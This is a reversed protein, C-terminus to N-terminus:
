YIYSGCTGCIECSHPASGFSDCCTAPDVSFGVCAYYAVFAPDNCPICPSQAHMGLFTAVEGADLNTDQNTDLASFLCQLISSPWNLISVWTEWESLDLSGDGNADKCSIDAFCALSDEAGTWGATTCASCEDVGLAAYCAHFETGGGSGEDSSTTEGVAEDEEIAYDKCILGRVCPVCTDANFKSQSRSYLGQGPRLKSKLVLKRAANRNGAMWAPESEFIIERETYFKFAITGSGTYQIENQAHPMSVEQTFRSCDTTCSFVLVGDISIHVDSASAGVSISKLARNSDAQITCSSTCETTQLTSEDEIFAGLEKIIAPEVALAIQKGPCACDRSSTAGRKSRSRAGSCTSCEQDGWDAKFTGQLCSTCTTAGAKKRKGQQCGGSVCSTGATFPAYLGEGCAVCDTNGIDAKVYHEPCASCAFQDGSYGANCRCSSLQHPSGVPLQSNDPCQVCAMNGVIHKTAGSACAVCQGDQLSYGVECVCADLSTAGEALTTSHQRLSGCPTCAGNGTVSSFTGVDCGVCAGDVHTFGPPCVCQSASTAGVGDYVSNACPQCQMFSGDNWTNAPCLEVSGQPPAATYAVIWYPGLARNWPLKQPFNRTNWDWVQTGPNVKCMSLNLTSYLVDSLGWNPVGIRFPSRKSAFEQVWVSERACFTGYNWSVDTIECQNTDPNLTWCDHCTSANWESNFKGYPCQVCGEGWAPLESANYFGQRCWCGTAGLAFDPSVETIRPIDANVARPYLGFYYQRLLSIYQISDHTRHPFTARYRDYEYGLPVSMASVSSINFDVHAPMHSNEQSLDRGYYNGGTGYSGPQSPDWGVGGRIISDSDQKTYDNYAAYSDQGTLGFCYSCSSTGAIPKYKNRPCAVCTTVKQLVCSGNRVDSPDYYATHCPTLGSVWDPQNPSCCLLYYDWYSAYPMSFTQPLKNAFFAHKPAADYRGTLTGYNEVASYYQFCNRTAEDDPCHLQEHDQVEEYGPPCEIHCEMEHSGTNIRKYFQECECASISKSGPASQSLAPCASCPTNDTTNKYTNAACAICEGNLLTTGPLCLCDYPLSSAVTATTSNAHCAFLEGDVSWSGVPAPTCTSASEAFYGAVCSCNSASTSGVPSHSHTTCPTCAADEAADKFTGAACAVCQSSDSAYGAACVCADASSAGPTSTTEHQACATCSTNGADAKYSGASCPNCEDGDPYLGVGCVFATVTKLEVESFSTATFSASESSLASNTASTTLVSVDVADRATSSEYVVEADVEIQDSLLRRVANSSVTRVDKVRVQELAVGFVTTMASRFALKDFAEVTTDLTATFAVIYEPVVGQGSPLATCTASGVEPTYENEGCATCPGGNPGHFGLACLCSSKGIKATGVTVSNEDCAACSSGLLSTAFYTDAACPVCNYSEDTVYGDQCTASVCETAGAEAVFGADCPLCADNGVTSKYTGANCPICGASYTYGAICECASESTSGASSVTNAPCAACTSGSAYTNEGCFECGNESPVSGAVCTCQSADTAAAASDMNSGCDTCAVNGITAKYTSSACATCGFSNGAYGAECECATDSTSGEQLTSKNDPCPTCETTAITNKYFGVACPTCATSSTGGYGAVCLCTNVDTGAETAAAPDADSSLTNDPCTQLNWMDNGYYGSKPVCQWVESSGALSHTNWPCSDCGSNGIMSKYTNAPCATCTGGVLELGPDCECAAASTAGLVEHSTSEPCSTCAQDGTESKYSNAACPECTVPESYLCTVGNPPIGDEPIVDIIGVGCASKDNNYYYLTTYAADAAVSIKKTCDGDDSTCDQFESLAPAGWTDGASIRLGFINSSFGVKFQTTGNRRIQIRPMSETFEWSDGFLIGPLRTHHAASVYCQSSTDIWKLLYRDSASHDRNFNYIGSSRSACNAICIVSGYPEPSTVCEPLGQLYKGVDCVCAQNSDVFPEACTCADVSTSGAPSTSGTFCPTCAESGVASKYTGAACPACNSADAGTYGAECVCDAYEDHAEGVTTSHEPCADCALQNAFTAKYTGVVCPQCADVASGGDPNFYGPMCQCLNEADAHGPIPYLCTVGNPPMSNEPIVDIIGVGCDPKQTNWYYLTTYTADVPITMKKTCTSDGWQCSVLKLNETSGWVSSESIYFYLLNSGTLGAINYVSKFYTTAGRRVQFRPMAESLEWGGDVDRAMNYCQTNSDSYSMLFRDYTGSGPYPNTLCTPPINTGSNVRCPSCADNGVHDKFYNADCSVCANASADFEFGASCQCTNGILEGNAVCQCGSGGSYVTSAASCECSNDVLIMLPDACTCVNSGVDLEYGSNCLCLNESNSGTQGDTGSNVRCPSCSHDGVAEKYYNEACAVCGNDGPEFGASCECENGVLETGESCTPGLTVCASRDANPEEPANCKTCYTIWGGVSVWGTGCQVCKCNHAYPSCTYSPMFQRLFPDIHVHGPACPSFAAYGFKFMVFYVFIILKNRVNVMVEVKSLAYIIAVGCNFLTM